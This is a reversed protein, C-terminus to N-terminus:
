PTREKNPRQSRRKMPDLASLLRLPQAGLAARAQRQAQRWAPHAARILANGRPTVRLGDEDTVLGALRLRALNRSVTSKELELRHGVWTPTTPGALAVAVLMGLQAGTVGHSRLAGDYIRGLVRDLTRVRSALCKTAIDLAQRRDTAIIVRQIYLQSSQPAFRHGRCKDRTAFAAVIRHMRM